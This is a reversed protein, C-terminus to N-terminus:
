LVISSLSLRILFGIFNYPVGIVCMVFDKYALMAAPARGAGGWYRGLTTSTLDVTLTWVSFAAPAFSSYSRVKILIYISFATATFTRYLPSISTM